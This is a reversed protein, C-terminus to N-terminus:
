SLNIRLYWPVLSVAGPDGPIAAARLRGVLCRPPRASSSRASSRHQQGGACTLGRAGRGAGRAPLHAAVGGHRIEAGHTPSSAGNNGGPLRATGASFPIRRRFSLVIRREEADVGFPELVSQLSVRIAAINGLGGMEAVFRGGPVLVRHVSQLVADQNRVWHLAANSFVADFSEEFPLHTMDAAVVAFRERAAALMSADRDCGTVIAGTAALSELLAGDGCGLDLVREGPQANLLALLDTALDAVFRGNEGYM